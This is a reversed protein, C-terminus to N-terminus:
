LTKSANLLECNCIKINGEASVYIEMFLKKRIGFPDIMNSTDSTYDIYNAFMNWMENCFLSDSIVESVDLKEAYENNVLKKLKYLITVFLTSMYIRYNIEHLFKRISEMDFLLYKGIEIDSEYSMINKFFDEKEKYFESINIVSNKDPKIDYIFDARDDEDRTPNISFSEDFNMVKEHEIDIAIGNTIM